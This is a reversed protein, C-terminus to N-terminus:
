LGAGVAERIHGFGDSKLRQVLGNKIEGILGPGRYVLATYLGILSAGALIKDYADDADTIGGVGILPLRRETLRAMEALLRTSLAMLPKGSLGGAEAALRPPLDAPRSVTTNSVVLGDVSGSLAAEAISYRSAPDLDPAIKLLVPTDAAGSAARAEGIVQLLSRLREGMQLDRLGPTNPSSVNIVLFDTLGAMTLIGSRFDGDPDTSDRNPALNVGVPADASGQRLRRRRLREGVRDLGQNNLGLRNIMAGQGPARFVRPKPNGAQARPTVGGVEVFGFGLRLLADVAEANKDFGAALGVPNAFHRGWLTVGLCPDDQKARRPALGCRLALITLRHALEPPLQRLVPGALPFLDIM